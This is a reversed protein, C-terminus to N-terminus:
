MDLPLRTHAHTVSPVRGPSPPRRLPRIGAEQSALIPPFLSFNCPIPSVEQNPTPPSSRGPAVAPCKPALTGAPSSTCPAATELHSEPYGAARLPLNM